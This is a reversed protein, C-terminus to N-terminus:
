RWGMSVEKPDDYYVGLPRQFPAAGTVVTFLEGANKYPGRGVLYAVEVNTIPPKGAGIVINYFVGSYWLLGLATLFLMILLGLISLLILTETDMM